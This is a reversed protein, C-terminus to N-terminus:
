RLLTMRGSGEYAGAELRYVFVGSSVDYGRDDRGNWVVAHRGPERAVGDELVRVLRGRIDYITLRVTAPEPLDYRITTRPNFPNPVAAWLKFESPVFAPDDDIGTAPNVTLSVPVIVQLEDEDNTDFILDCDYDGQSLGTADVCIEVIHTEAQPVVGSTPDESIWTCAGHSVEWLLDIAGMSGWNSIELNACDADDEQVEFSLSMPVIAIDPPQWYDGTFTVTEGEPITQTVPDPTRWGGGSTDPFWTCTYEGPVLGTLTTDGSASVDYGGPGTMQWAGDIHDPNTDIIANTESEVTLSVPVVVQPEDPDNSDFVLDCSYDGATLASADVCVAVITSDGAAIVGTDPVASLWPCDERSDAASGFVAGVGDVARVSRTPLALTGEVENVSWTLDAEGLNYVVLSDCDAAGALVTFSLSTPDVDIDPPPPVPASEGPDLPVELGNIVVTVPGPNGPLATVASSAGPDFELGYGADLSAEVIGTNDATFVGAVPGSVVEVTTPSSSRALGRSAPNCTVLTRDGPQMKLVSCDCVTVFDSTAGGSPYAWVYVGLPDDLDTVLLVQDGSFTVWGETSGGGAVDSFANSFAPDPDVDSHIYDHDVGGECGVGQAGIQGCTAPSHEAACVSAADLTLLESLETGTHCFLPNIALCDLTDTVGVGEVEGLIDCCTLSATGDNHLAYDNGTGYIICHDFEGDAGPGLLCSTSYLTSSTVTLTWGNQVNIGAGSGLLGSYFRSSGISLDGSDERADNRCYIHEGTAARNDWFDTNAISVVADSVLDLYVGGSHGNEDQAENDHISSNTITVNSSAFGLGGGSGETTCFSVECGDITVDSRWAYMGGIGATAHGGSFECNSCSLTAEFAHLLGASRAEGGDLTCNQMTILADTAYMCGGFDAIGGVLHCDEMSFQGGTVKLCGGVGAGGASGNTIDIRELQITQGPADVIIGRHDVGEEYADIIVHESDSLSMLTISDDLLVDWNGDGTYTFAPDIAVIADRTAADVAAQITPYDDSPVLLLPPATGPDFSLGYHMPVTATVVGQALVPASEGPALVVDDGNITVTVPQYNTALATITGDEVEDAFFTFFGTVPGEVEVQVPRAGRGGGRSYPLGTLVVESEPHMRVEACGCVMVADPVSGGTPYGLVRIGKEPDPDDTVILIQDGTFTVTGETRGGLPLDSFADSDEYPLTDVSFDIYDGDDNGGECEQEGGGVAVGCDNHEPLCMSAADLPPVPKEHIPPSWENLPVCFLPDVSFCTPDTYTSGSGALTGVVDSCLLECYGDDNDLYDGDPNFLASGYVYVDAGSGVACGARYVSSFDMNLTVGPGVHLASAAIVTSEVLAHDGDGIYVGDDERGTLGQILSNTIAFDDNWSELGSCINGGSGVATNFAVRSRDIYVYNGGAIGGGNGTASCNAVTSGELTVATWARIGGGSGDTATCDRVQSSLLTVSGGDIGGGRLADCGTVETGELVASGFIAGGYTGATCDYLLCDEVTLPTGTGWIAGGEFSSYGRTISLGRITVTPSNYILFARGSDECDIITATPGGGSSTVTIDKNIVVDRNGVGTYTTLEALRVVDGPAAADVAAQIDPYVGPVDLIEPLVTVTYPVDSCLDQGTEVTCEYYGAQPPDFYLGVTIHEGGMLSFPGDGETIEWLDCSESVDGTLPASLPGATNTITFDAGYMQVGGHSTIDPMNWVDPSVECIPETAGIGVLEVDDCLNDGLLVNDFQIDYMMPEFRLTVEMQEGAPLSFPGAGSRISFGEEYQLSVDGTLTGVGDNTIAFTTDRYTGLIVRGFDVPNPSVGCPPGSGVGTVSVDGCAAAGTQITCDHTGLSLPLFMVSVTHWQGPELTYAGGGYQFMYHDCSESVFGSFAVPGDNLIQFTQAYWTGVEVPGFDIIDPTVACSPPLPADGMFLMWMLGFDSTGTRPAGVALDDFGNSDFDGMKTISSGFGDRTGLDGTFGGSGETIEFDSKVTGDTNLFLIWVSGPHGSGAGLYSPAGVALDGIGDTDQDGLFAAAAGFRLGDFPVGTFGGTTSSIKQYGTVAAFEELFLVWVAGRNNGGDDDLPAGVAIDIIGNGDHDGIGQVSSGFSDGSDLVGSFGSSLSSIKHNAKVGGSSYLRLVYVSGCNVGGDNDGPVGVVLDVVSDGDFDGIQAVSTGFWDDTALYGTFGGSYADIKVHSKVTGDGDLFLVWLAGSDTTVGTDDYPAGVVVDEFGDGDIDGLGAVSAGFMDTDDLVGTFGGETDSIKQEAKVTGDENLFLVYVAGRDPGGDDDFPAGVVIDPVTDNDLDGVNAASTGFYDAAALGTAAFAEHWVVQNVVGASAGVGTLPVNSCGINGLEVLDTLIGTQGPVFRVTVEVSEGSELAYPGGGSVVAYNFSFINVDGELTGGGTNQITFVQEAFSGVTVLGFDLSTPFVDCVPASADGIGTLEVGPCLGTGLDVTCLHSGDTTPEFRVTVVLEDVPALAFAGGGDTIEYHDCSETVSGVLTGGGTNTITFTDDATGGVGITGFDISTPTVDCTPPLEGDLYMLWVSGRDSGGDDDTPAGAAIDSFGDGDYDGLCALSTGMKDGSQLPGTFGGQTASIKQHSKVTGDDNLFLVWVAGGQSVGDDDNFAGVGLDPVSDADVDGLAAVSCGFYSGNDLVGTFGGQTSSIKQHSVVTGTSTLSLVWVAGRRDGGEDDDDAGVAIETYGDGDLDGLHTISCGFHDSDSLIGTFNGETDSIKQDAKVTGDDNLLLVWIAGRDSGGDDDRDVGVALDEVGDSDLDGIRALAGGLYDNTDLVGSFGGETDSIKQHSKVTGDTDLFLVWICGHNTGGDDDGYAGVAIDEVDDGDLDGLPAVATGLADYNQLYGTFGGYWDSIKEHSKVTGDLNLFLVWVAGRNGGAAGDDDDPAGVVIDGFGDGDLDGLPAVCTGFEDYNDLTGTFGGDTSSIKQEALVTGSQGFAVGTALLTILLCLVLCFVGRPHVRPVFVALTNRLPFFM